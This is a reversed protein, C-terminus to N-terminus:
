RRGSGSFDGSQLFRAIASTVDKRWMMWTHSHRVVLFDKMGALRTSQVSVKGDDDGPLSASLFANLSVDGAIIGLEFDAPGLRAPLSSANTGLQQGASGTFCKFLFNGKFKDALESGQNPPALMVVRGLNEIRHEALYQRLVIGGLSHTVFHVKAARDPTREKLLDALWSDAAQQVSLRTSPYSVNVVRYGRKELAWEVRKMSAATRGLGHLLVVYDGNGVSAANPEGPVRSMLLSVGILILLRQNM